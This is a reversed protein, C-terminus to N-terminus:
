DTETRCIRRSRPPEQRLLRLSLQLSCLSINLPPRKTNANNNTFDSNKITGNEGMWLIAGGLYNASNNTFNSDTITGNHSTYWRIAGGEAGYGIAKNDIFTSYSINGNHGYWNVAGGGLHSATNTM